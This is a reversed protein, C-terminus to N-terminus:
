GHQGRSCAEVCPRYAHRLDLQRGRNRWLWDVHRAVRLHEYQALPVTCPRVDAPSHEACVAVVGWFRSARNCCSLACLCCAFALAPLQVRPSTVELVPDDLVFAKEYHEGDMRMGEATPTRVDIFTVIWTYGHGSRPNERTVEITDITTLNVLADKVEQATANFRIAPTRENTRFTLFFSGGVPAKGNTHTNVSAVPNYGVLGTANVSPGACCIRLCRYLVARVRSDPSPLLTRM